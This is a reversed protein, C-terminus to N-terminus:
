RRNLQYLNLNQESFVDRLTTVPRNCTFTVQETGDDNVGIDIQMIRAQTDVALRGSTVKVRITDGLWCQYRNTWAGPTLVLQYAAELNSDRALEWQAEALLLGTDAVNSDSKTIQWLGEPHNQPNTMVDGSATQAATGSAGTMLVQNAFATSELTRKVSVVNVGYEATFPQTIGRYPYYLYVSGMAQTPDPAADVGYVPEVVWEFGGQMTALKDIETGAQETGAYTITRTTGTNGSMYSGDPNHPGAYSIGQNQPYSGSHYDYASLIAQVIAEQYAATFAQAPVLCRNLVARYDAAQVNTVHTTGDLTDESHGIVGRFVAVWRNYVPDWRCFVLDQSLEQIGAAQASRGNIDCQATYPATLDFHVKRNRADDLETVLTNRQAPPGRWVTM